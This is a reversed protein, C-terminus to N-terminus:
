SQWRVGLCAVGSEELYSTPVLPGARGGWFWRCCASVVGESFSVSM